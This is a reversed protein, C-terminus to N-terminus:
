KKKKRFSCPLNTSFTYGLGQFVGSTNRIKPYHTSNKLFGFLRRARVDGTQNKQRKKCQKTEYWLTIHCQSSRTVFCSIQCRLDLSIHSAKLKQMAALCSSLLCLFILARQSHTHTCPVSHYYWLNEEGSTQIHPWASHSSGKRQFDQAFSPRVGMCHSFPFVSVPNWAM